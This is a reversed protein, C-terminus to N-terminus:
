SKSAALFVSCGTPLSCGRKLWAHELGAMAGCFLDIAPSYTQVDSTASRPPFLKRRAIILPFLIMNAYSAQLPRLGCDRVMKLLESKRYRHHTECTKDHYSWMWRYAAVNIVVVGGPRLVRAFEGLAMSGNLVQSLVDACTVLDFSEAPFPLETISGQVIEALTSEQALSCAIPSFDLGTIAWLPNQTSLTRILGGTGCGADLVRAPKGHWHQLPLMMRHNLARFYWMADGTEALKRYEDIQM